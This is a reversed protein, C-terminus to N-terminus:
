RRNAIDDTAAAVFARRDFEPRRGRRQINEAELADAFADIVADVTVVQGPDHVRAM